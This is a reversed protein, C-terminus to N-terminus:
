GTGPVTQGRWQDLKALIDIKFDQNQDVAVVDTLRNARGQGTPDEAAGVETTLKILTGQGGQGGHEIDLLFLQADGNSSANGDAQTNNYGNGFAVMWKNNNMKFMQPKTYSYGLDADDADTFEWLVLSDANSESFTAPNTVDLAYVGQGGKGLGGIAVTHWSGGYFVDSVNIPSDVYFQHSYSPNTLASLNPYLSSPVYALIERGTSANVIHLMGDNGGFLVMDQRGSRSTVFSSYTVSEMSDPWFFLPAGPPPLFFPDSHVV